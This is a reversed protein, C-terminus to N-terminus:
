FKGVDTWLSIRRFHSQHIVPFKYTSFILITWPFLSSLIIIILALVDLVGQFMKLGSNFDSKTFSIYKKSFDLLCLSALFWCISVIM